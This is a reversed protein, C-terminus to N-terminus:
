AAALCYAYMTLMVDGNKQESHLFYLLFELGSWLSGSWSVITHPTETLIICHAITRYGHDYRQNHYQVNPRSVVMCSWSWLCPLLRSKSLKSRKVNSGQSIVILYIIHDHYVNPWSWQGTDLAMILSMVEVNSQAMYLWPGHYMPGHGYSHGHYEYIPGHCAIYWSKWFNMIMAYATGGAMLLYTSMNYCVVKLILSM